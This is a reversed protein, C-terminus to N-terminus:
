CYPCIAMIKTKTEASIVSDDISAIVRGLIVMAMRIDQQNVKKPDASKINSVRAEHAAILGELYQDKLFSEESTNLSTIESVALAMLPRLANKALSLDRDSLLTELLQQENKIDDM